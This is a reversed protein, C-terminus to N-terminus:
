VYKTKKHLDFLIKLHGECNTKLRNHRRSLNLKTALGSCVRGTQNHKARAAKSRNTEQQKRTKNHNTKKKITIIGYGYPFILFFLFLVALLLSSLPILPFSFLSTSSIEFRSQGQIKRMEYFISICSNKKWPTPTPPLYRWGNVKNVWLHRM